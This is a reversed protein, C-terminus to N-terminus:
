NVKIGPPEGFAASISKPARDGVVLVHAAAATPPSEPLTQAFPSINLALPLVKVTVPKLLANM